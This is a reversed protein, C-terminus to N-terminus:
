KQHGALPVPWHATHRVAADSCPGGTNKQLKNSPLWWLEAQSSQTQIQSPVSLFPLSPCVHVRLEPLLTM